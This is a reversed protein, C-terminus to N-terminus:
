KSLIFNINDDQLETEMFVRSEYNLGEYNILSYLNMYDIMNKGIVRLRHIIKIISDPTIKSKSIIRLMIEPKLMYFTSFNMMDAISDAIEKELSSTEMGNSNMLIVHDIIMSREGCKKLYVELMKMLRSFKFFECLCYLDAFFPMGIDIQPQELADIFAELANSSVQIPIEYKKINVLHPVDCNALFAKSSYNFSEGNLIFSSDRESTPNGYKFHIM